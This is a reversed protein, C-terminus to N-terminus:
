IWRSTEGHWLYKLIMM